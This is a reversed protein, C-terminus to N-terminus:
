RNRDRDRRQVVYVFCAVAAVIALAAPGFIALSALFTV